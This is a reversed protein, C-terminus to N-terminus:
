QGWPEMKTGLITSGSWYRWWDLAELEAVKQQYAELSPYEGVGWIALEENAWRAKCVIHYTAGVRQDIEQVKAQLSAREAPALQYWAETYGKGLVLLFIPTAM